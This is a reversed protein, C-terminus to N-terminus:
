VALSEDANEANLAQKFYDLTARLGTLLDINAKWGITQIKELCPKRGAHDHPARPVSTVTSASNTIHIVKEALDRIAIPTESGLNYVDGPNGRSMILEFGDLIDDVFCLTRSQSGDGHVTIPADALAQMAFQPIVRTDTLAMRPGYVNFLRVIRARVKRHSAFYAVLTEAFRKGEEYNARPGISDVNGTYGEGQPSQLPEGYVESSSTFLLDAGNKAAVELVRITGVSCAELMEWGLLEINPVGTACALHYIRDFNNGAENCFDIFEPTEIGCISFVFNPNKLFEQVNKKTGTVLNDVSWVQHGERLLRETLNSGIFGAGGTILMRM